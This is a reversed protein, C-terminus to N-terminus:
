WDPKSLVELLIQGDNMNRLDPATSRLDGGQRYKEAISWLSEGLKKRAERMEQNYQDKRSDPKGSKSDSTNTDLSSGDTGAQQGQALRAYETMMAVLRKGRDIGSQRSQPTSADTRGENDKRKIPDFGSPPRGTM